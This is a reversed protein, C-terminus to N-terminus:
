SDAPPREGVFDIVDEATATEGSEVYYCAAANGCALAVDWDWGCALGHALGGSFRDGGGTHRVPQSIRYNQVQIREDDAVVAAEDRSHFAAAHIGTAERIAGLRGVDDDFSGSLATAVTRTEERNGNFVVDFTDQLTALADLLREMEGPDSGVVDGPDFVFPVRPLEEEGLRHFASELGSLSLWNSCCVADGGFVDDLDAVRRLDALAWDTVDADEVLMLDRDTFNFVYVLSPDGMSVTEFPLAEFVPDDLHGYCTVRDGLAHLQKAANVAQGGSETTDVHFQLSTRDGFIERGFAERTDLGRGAGTDVSCYHDVSGDPLTSVTPSESSSLQRALRDYPM